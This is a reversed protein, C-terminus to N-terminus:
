RHEFFSFLCIVRFSSIIAHKTKRGQAIRHGSRGLQIHALEFHKFGVIELYGDSCSQQRFHDNDTETRGCWIRNHNGTWPNNGAAYSAINLLLIGDPQLRFLEEDLNKGDVFIEFHNAINGCLYQRECM